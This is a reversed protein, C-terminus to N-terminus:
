TPRTGDGIAAFGEALVRAATDSVSSGDQRAAEALREALAEPLRVLVAKRPGCWQPRRRPRVAGSDHYLSPVHEELHAALAGGFARPWRRRCPTGSRASCPPGPGASCPARTSGKYPPPRGPASGGPGPSRAAGPPM